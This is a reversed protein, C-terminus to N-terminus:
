RLANRVEELLKGAMNQGCWKSKDFVRDDELRRGCGWYSDLSGEALTDENTNLLFDRLEDNQKFKALMGEKMIAPAKKHWAQKQQENFSASIQKSIRKATEPNPDMMIDTTERKAFEAKCATYFQEVSSFNTGNITLKCPHFNSLPSEKHFFATTNDKHQTAIAQKSYSQPLKDLRDITYTQSDIVLSDGRLTAAKVKPDRKAKALYPALQRRKQKIEQPYDETIYLPDKLLSRNAWVVQRDRHHHFRMIIPRTRKANGTNLSYLRHIRSFIPFGRNTIPVGAETLKKIVIEALNEKRVEQVGHLLLNERRGYAELGILRKELRDVKSELEDNRIKLAAIQQTNTDAIRKADAATEHAYNLSKNISAQLSRHMEIAWKPADESYWDDFDIMPNSLLSSAGTMNLRKEEHQPTSPSMASFGRKDGGTATM